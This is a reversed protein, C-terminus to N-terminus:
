SLFTQCLGAQSCARQSLQVPVPQMDPRMQLKSLRTCVQQGAKKDAAGGPASHMVAAPKYPPRLRMRSCARGSRLSVAVSASPEPAASNAASARASTSSPSCSSEKVGRMAPAARPQLLACPQLPAPNCYRAPPAQASCRTLFGRWCQRHRSPAPQHGTSCRGAATPAQGAKQCPGARVAAPKGFMAQGAGAARSSFYKGSLTLALAKVRVGKECSASLSRAPWAQVLQLHRQVPPRQGAAGELGGGSVTPHSSVAAPAHLSNPTPSVCATAPSGVAKPMWPARGRLGASCMGVTSQVRHLRLSHRTVMQGVRQAADFAARTGAPLVTHPRALIYSAAGASDPVQSHLVQHATEWHPGFITARRLAHRCVHM